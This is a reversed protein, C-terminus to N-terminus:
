DFYSGLIVRICRDKVSITSYVAIPRIQVDITHTGIDLTVDDTWSWMQEFDITSIGSDGVEVGVGFTNQDVGDLRWKFLGGAENNSYSWCKYKSNLFVLAKARYDVPITLSIVTTYDPTTITTESIEKSFYTDPLWRNKAVTTDVFSTYMSGKVVSVNDILARNTLDTYSSTRFRVAVCDHDVEVTYKEIAWDLTGSVSITDVTFTSVPNGTLSDYWLLEPYLKITKGSATQLKRAFSFVITGEENQVNMRNSPGLTKDEYLFAHYKGEYPDLTSIMANGEWNGFEFGGNLVENWGIPPKVLRDYTITFTQIKSNIIALDKIHHTDIELSGIKPGTIAFDDINDTQIKFTPALVNNDLFRGAPEIKIYDVDLTGTDSLNRVRTEITHGTKVGPVFLSVLCWDFSGNQLNYLDLFTLTKAALTSSASYDNIDLLAKDSPAFFPECRIRFHVLYDGPNLTKYPGFVFYGTSSVTSRVLTGGSASSDTVLFGGNGYNLNEAEWLTSGIVNQIGKQLHEFNIALNQINDATIINDGEIVGIVNLNSITATNITVGSITSNQFLVSSITSSSLNVNQITSAQFLVNSITGSEIKSTQITGNQFVVNSIESATIDSNQITSSQFLVNSITGSLIKSTQISSDQFLVNSITSSIINSTQISSSALIVNDINGANIDVNNITCESFFALDVSASHVDVTSITGTNITANLIYVNNAQSITEISSDIIYAKNVNSITSINANIANLNSLTSTIQGISANTVNLNELDSLTNINATIVNLNNLTNSIVNISASAVFLNDVESITTATLNVVSLDEIGTLSNISANTVFLNDVDSITNIYANTANLIGCSSIEDVSFTNVDMIGVSDISGISTIHDVSMIGLDQIEQITTITDVSMVGVHDITNITGVSDVIIRTAHSIQGLEEITGINAYNINDISNIQGIYNVNMEEINDIKNFTLSGGEQVEINMKGVRVEGEWKDPTGTPGTYGRVDRTIIFELDNANKRISGLLNSINRVDSKLERIQQVEERELPKVPSKSLILETNWDEGDFEHTIEQVVYLDSYDEFTLTYGTGLYIPATGKMTLKRISEEIKSVAALRISGEVQAESTTMSGLYSNKPIYERVGFTDQSDPFNIEINELKEIYLHDIIAGTWAVDAPSLGSIEIIVNSISGSSTQGSFESSKAVYTKYDKLPISPEDGRDTNRLAIGGLNASYGSDTINPEDTLIVKIEGEPNWWYFWTKSYLPIISFHIKDFESFPITEGTKLRIRLKKAGTGVTDRVIIAYNGEKVPSSLVDISFESSGHWGDQYDQVAVDWNSSSETWYDEDEHWIHLYTYNARNYIKSSDKTRERELFTSLSIPSISESGKFVHLTSGKDVYFSITYSNCFDSLLDYVYSRNTQGWSVTNDPDLNITTSLEGVDVLPQVIRTVHGSELTSRKHAVVGYHKLKRGPGWAVVRWSEKEKGIWNKEITVVEGLFEDYINSGRIFKGYIDDGLSLDISDPFYAELVDWGQNLKKNIRMRSPHLTNSTGFPVIVGYGKELEM